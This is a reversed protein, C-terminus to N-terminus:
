INEKITKTLPYLAITLNYTRSTKRGSALFEGLERRFARIREKVEPIKSEDTACTMTTMDRSDLPDSDISAIARQLFQKQLNRKAMTTSQSTVNTTMGKTADVIHGKKSIKVLSLKKLRDLAGEIQLESLNFVQALSKKTAIFRTVTIQELIATDYWEPMQEFDQDSIETFFDNGDKKTDFGLKTILTSQAKPGLKRQGNIVKSLTSADMRLSRAFARLSYSENTELRRNLEYKLVASLDHNKM